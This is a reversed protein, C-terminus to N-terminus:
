RVDFRSRWCLVGYQVTMRQDVQSCDRQSTRLCEAQAPIAIEFLAGNKVAMKCVLFLTWFPICHASNDQM